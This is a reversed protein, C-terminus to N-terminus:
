ARSREQHSAAFAKSLAALEAMAGAPKDAQRFQEALAPKGLKIQLDLVSSTRAKEKLKIVVTTSATQGKDDVANVVVQLQEAQEGSGAVVTFTGTTPDFKVFSPLPRGDALRASLAVRANGDTHVFTGAPLTFSSQEGREIVVDRSAEMARLGSFNTGAMPSVGVAVVGSAAGQGPMDTLPMVIPSSLPDSTLMPITNVVPSSLFSSVSPRVIEIPAAQVVTIVPAAPQPLVVPSPPLGGAQVTTTSYVTETTNLQDTFTAKVRLEQLAYQPQVEYSPGNAQAIDQWQGNADKYQWQYTVTGMGDLDALTNTVSLIQGVGADGSITVDGTAADNLNAVTATAASIVEEQRSPSASDTYNVKVTIVKGVQAQGLVFTSQNAGDIPQGDEFWQYSKGTIGDEDALTDNAILTEGQKPTGSVTLSGTAPDNVDTVTM